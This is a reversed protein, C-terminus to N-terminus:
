RGPADVRRIWTRLLLRTNGPEDRFESRGHLLSLNDFLALEGPRLKGIETHAGSAVSADLADLARRQATSLSPVSPWTHGKEIYRRFYTIAQRGDQEFLVPKEVTSPEGAAQDGRRDFHFASRLTALVDPQDALAAVVERLHVFQLDGGVTSQRVCLLTFLDPAPLAAEAGDTHLEGGFRSDSYRARGGEGIATGRDRVRRVLTGEADQPLPEGVLRSLRVLAREAAEPDVPLGTLVLVGVGADVYEAVLRRLEERVRDVDGSGSVLFDGCAASLTVRSRDFADVSLRKAADVPVHDM